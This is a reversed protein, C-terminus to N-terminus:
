DECIYKRHFLWETTKLKEFAEKSGKDRMDLVFNEISVRWRLLHMDQINFPLLFVPSKKKEEALFNYLDNFNIQSFFSYRQRGKRQKLILEKSEIETDIHDPEIDLIFDALFDNFHM